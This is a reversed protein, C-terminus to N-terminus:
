LSTLEAPEGQMSNEQVNEVEKEMPKLVELIIPVIDKLIEMFVARGSKEAGQVMFEHSVKDLDISDLRLHPLGLGLLGGLVGEGLESNLFKCIGSFDSYKGPPYKAILVKLIIEKMSQSILDCFMRLMVESVKSNFSEENQDKQAGQADQADQNKISLKALASSYFEPSHTPTALEDGIYLKDEVPGPLISPKVVAKPDAANFVYSLEIDGHNAANKRAEENLDNSACSWIVGLRNELVTDIGYTKIDRSLREEFFKSCFVASHNLELIKKFKEDFAKEGIYEEWFTTGDVSKISVLWIGELSNGSHYDEILEAKVECHRLFRKNNALLDCTVTNANSGM